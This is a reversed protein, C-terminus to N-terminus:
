SNSSGKLRAKLQKLHMAGQDKSVSSQPRTEAGVQASMAPRRRAHATAVFRGKDYRNKVGFFWQLPSKQIIGSSM